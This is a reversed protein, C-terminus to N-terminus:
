STLRLSLRPDRDSPVRPEDKKPISRIGQRAEDAQLCEDKDGKTLTGGRYICQTSTHRDPDTFIIKLPEGAEFELLLVKRGKEDWMTQCGTYHPPLDRPYIFYFQGHNTNVASEKPPNNLSCNSNASAQCSVTIGAFGFLLSAIHRSVQVLM